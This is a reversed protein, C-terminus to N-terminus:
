IALSGNSRPRAQNNQLRGRLVRKKMIASPGFVNQRCHRRLARLSRLEARFQFSDNRREFGGVDIVGQSEGDCAFERRVICNDHIQGAAAVFVNLEDRFQFRQHISNSFREGSSFREPRPPNMGNMM